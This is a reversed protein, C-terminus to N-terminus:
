PECLACAPAACPLRQRPRPACACWVARWVDMRACFMAVAHKRATLM